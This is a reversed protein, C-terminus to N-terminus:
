IKLQDPTFHHTEGSEGAAHLFYIAAESKFATRADCNLEARGHIADFFNALHAESAPRPAKGPVEYNIPPASAYSLIAMESDEDEQPIHHPPKEQARLIGRKALDAFHVGTRDDTTRNRIQTLEGAGAIRLTANLGIFREFRVEPDSITTLSQHFARATGQPTDYQFFCMLNDFHKREKFFDRGAAVTVSKPVADLLWNIIDIQRATCRALRGQSQEPNHQWNHFGHMDNYGYKQLIKTDITLRPSSQLDAFADVSTNWQSNINHVPGCIKHERLLRECIYRYVANSRHQHGIQCLKGTRESTRVIERAADLTHAMMSECYVHLGAEMCRTAHPAHWFDPTAIIAADLEKEKVLMEDLDTYANPTDGQYVRVRKQGRVKNFRSIDCIAQIRMGPINRMNEFLTLGQRGFGVMAVNLTESPANATSARLVGPAGLVMGAKASTVLFRRRNLTSPLSDM